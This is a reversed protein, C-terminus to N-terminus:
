GGVGWSVQLRDGHSCTNSNGTPNRSLALPRGVARGSGVINEALRPGTRPTPRPTMKATEIVNAVLAACRSGEGERLGCSVKGGPPTWRGRTGIMKWTWSRLAVPSCGPAHRRATPDGCIGHRHHPWGIVDNKFEWKTVCANRKGMCILLEGGDRTAISKWSHICVENMPFAFPFRKERM